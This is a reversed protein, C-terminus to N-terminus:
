FSKRLQLPTMKQNVRIKEAQIRFSAAALTYLLTEQENMRAYFMLLSTMLEASAGPTNASRALKTQL